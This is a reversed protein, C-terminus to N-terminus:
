EDAADSTYLLCAFGPAMLLGAGAAGLKVFQRRDLSSQGIKSAIHSAKNNRGSM